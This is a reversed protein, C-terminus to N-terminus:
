AAALQHVACCSVTATAASCIKWATISAAGLAPTHVIVRPASATCGPSAGASACAVTHPTARTTDSSCRPRVLTRTSRSGFPPASSSSGSSRATGFESSWSANRRPCVKASRKTGCAGDPAEIAGRAFVAHTILPPRPASPRATATDSTSAPAVFTTSHPRLAGPGSAFAVIEASRARPAVTSTADTSTASRPATFASNADRSARPTGTRPTTCAAPTSASPGTMACSRARKRM